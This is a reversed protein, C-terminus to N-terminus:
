RPRAPESRCTTSGSPQSSERVTSSRVRESTAAASAHLLPPQRRLRRYLLSAAAAGIAWVVHPGNMVLLGCVSVFAILATWWATSCRPLLRVAAATGIVYVLTFCGTTLLMLQALDFHFVENAVLSGLALGTIVALSRRPVAGTEAGKALSAPLAGDAALAAGLRSGGAFYANMAGVTLLVALVATVIRAPGGVGAVLLASLPASTHAAAPGLVLVTAAALALYLVGVVAIAITTARPLDRRPDRYEGALPAIAEWGAFGWVLLAAASGIAGIGHPAFPTLHATSGHPAAVLVAVSILAALVATLVLQVRGSLRLGAANLVGVFVILSAATVVATTRGGGVADAVYAGAMLSAPPAGVPVAFYFCWGIAGAARAGFARDVYASVGRSDPHRAGMAAFTTALPVSLVVLAIWAVLSAPGAVQVGLSPLTIVGTGLVAGISLAAGQPVSLSSKM